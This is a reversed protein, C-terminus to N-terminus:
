SFLTKVPLNGLAVVKNIHDALQTGDVGFLEVAQRANLDFVPGDATLTYYAARDLAGEPTLDRWMEGPMGYPISEQPQQAEGGAYYEGHRTTPMM